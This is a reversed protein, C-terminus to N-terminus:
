FCFSSLIKFVPVNFGSTQSNPTKHNWAFKLITHKIETFFATPIKVPITCFRYIANPLISMKVIKVNIRVIQSYLIDKWKNIDEEIEKMLIKYNDTYVNKM